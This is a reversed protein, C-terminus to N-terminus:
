AESKRIHIIMDRNEANAREIYKDLNLESGREANGLWLQIRIPATPGPGPDPLPSSQEPDTAASDDGVIHILQKGARFSLKSVRVVHADEPQGKMLGLKVFLVGSSCYGSLKQTIKTSFTHFHSNM